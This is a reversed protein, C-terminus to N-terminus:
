GRGCFFGKPHPLKGRPTNVFHVRDEHLSRWALGAHRMAGSKTRGSQRPPEVTAEPKEGVAPEESEWFYRHNFQQHLHREPLQAVASHRASVESSKQESRSKAFEGSWLMPGSDKEDPM